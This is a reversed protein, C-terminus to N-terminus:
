NQPALLVRRLLESFLQGARWFAAAALGHALVAFLPPTEHTYYVWCERTTGWVELFYGLGVGALFLLVATRRDGPTLILLACSLLALVTLPHFLAPQVFLLMLVYFVVFILWSLFTFFEDPLRELLRGLIRALRDIALTAVPWAPLIWLPPTEQTYYTWLGSQTGWSEIVLGGFLGVLALWADRSLDAGAMILLSMATFIALLLWDFQVWVPYAPDYLALYEEVLPWWVVIILGIVALFVSMLTYSTRNWGLKRPLDTFASSLM